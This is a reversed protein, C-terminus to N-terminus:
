RLLGAALFGLGLLALILRAMEDRKVPRLWVVRLAAFLSAPFRSAALLLLGGGYLAVTRSANIGFQHRLLFALFFGGQLAVLLAGLQGLTPAPPTDAARRKGGLNPM